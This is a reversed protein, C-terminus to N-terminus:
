DGSRACTRWLALLQDTCRRRDFEAEVRRRAAITMRHTETPNEILWQISKALAMPDAARCLLGTVQHEVLEPVGKVDTAIVPVGSAMAEVVAIGVSESVSPLVFVDSELLLHRIESASRVGIFLVYESVGLSAAQAKLEPGLPGDGVIVLQVDLSAMRMLGVADILDRQGKELVLRGVNLVAISRSQSAREHRVFPFDDLYIGCRVVILKSPEVQFTSAIYAANYRSVCVIRGAESALQRFNVPPEFFIDYGHTTFTFPIGTFRSVWMAVQASRDAYHAHLHTTREKLTRVTLQLALRVLWWDRRSRLALLATALAKLPRRVLLFLFSCIDNTLTSESPQAVCGSDVIKKARPHVITSNSKGISIVRCDADSRTVISYIEDSIFTESTNPFSNLFYAINMQM